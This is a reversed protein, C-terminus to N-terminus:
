RKRGSPRCKGPKKDECLSIEIGGVSGIPDLRQLNAAKNKTSRRPWILVGKEPINKEGKGQGTRRIPYMQCAPNASGTTCNSSIFAAKKIKKAGNKKVRGEKFHDKRSPRGRSKYTEDFRGPKGLGTHEGWNEWIAGRARALSKGDGDLRPIQEEGGSNLDSKRWQKQWREKKELKLRWRHERKSTKSEKKKSHIEKQGKM